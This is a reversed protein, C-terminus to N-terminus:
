GDQSLVRGKPLTFTFTAGEGPTSEAWIRGGHAEVIGKAISLGLGSGGNSRSRAKDARHFREFLKPLEEPLIGEGTDTVSVLVEKGNDAARIVIAGDAPTHRMANQLLNYMVRQVRRTDIVLPPLMDDVARQLKLGRKDAQAALSELTDYILEQISARELHLQLLGTDIQSLEFLDDILRSLYEVETQLTHLYRRITESDSVVGDNISEVMARMSALPTRLDHSVTAVLQRRAQELERQKAFAAELQEAMKNFAQAVEELEDQSRVTIRSSFEGTGMRRVAQIFATMNKNLSESIAFATFISMGLSFLLLFALLALDHPSIFMLRATVGVNILALAASLLLVFILKGKLTRLFRGIGFQLVVHGLTLTIGGSLLLFVGLVVLDRNPPSLLWANLTLVLVTLGLLTGTAAAFLALNQRVKAKL